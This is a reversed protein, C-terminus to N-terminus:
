VCDAVRLSVGGLVTRKSFSVTGCSTFFNRSNYPVRVNMVAKMVARRRDRGQAVDIRDIVGM